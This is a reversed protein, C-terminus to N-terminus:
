VGVRVRDGIVGCLSVLWVRVLVVLMLRVMKFSVCICKSHFVCCVYGVGM